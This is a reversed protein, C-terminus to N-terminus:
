DTAEKAPVNGDELTQIRKVMKGHKKTGAHEPKCCNLLKPGMRQRAHGSCKRCWILTEGQRDVSRVLDHGGLYRKAWKGLHKSLYKPETCKRPMRM